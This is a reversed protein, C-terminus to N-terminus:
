DVRILGGCSQVKTVVSFFISPGLSSCLIIRDTHSTFCQIYTNALTYSIIVLDSRLGVRSVVYTNELPNESAVM